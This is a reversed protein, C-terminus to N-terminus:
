YPDLGNSLVYFSVPLMHILNIMFILMHNQYSYFMLSSYAFNYKKKIYNGLILCFFALTMNDPLRENVLQKSSMDEEHYIECACPIMRSILLIWSM